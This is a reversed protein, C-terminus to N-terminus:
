VSVEVLSGGNQTTIDKVIDTYMQKIPLVIAALRGNLAYVETLHVELEDVIDRYVDIDVGNNMADALQINLQKHAESIERMLQLKNDNRSLLKEHQAQMIDTIDKNIDEKLKMAQEIMTIVTKRIM